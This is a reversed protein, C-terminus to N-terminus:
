EPKQQVMGLDIATTTKGVDGKRNTIAIVISNDFSDLPGFPALPFWQDRLSITREFVLGRSHGSYEM